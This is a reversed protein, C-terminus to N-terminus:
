LSTYHKGAKSVWCTSFGLRSDYCDLKSQNVAREALLILIFYYM